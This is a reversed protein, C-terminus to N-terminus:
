DELLEDIGLPLGTRPDHTEGYTEDWYEAETVKKMRGAPSDFLGVTIPIELKKEVMM